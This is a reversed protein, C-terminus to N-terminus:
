AVLDLMDAPNDFAVQGSRSLRCLADVVTRQAIRAADPSVSGHLSIQDELRRASAPSLKTLLRHRFGATTGILATLVQETEVQGFVAKLDGGDLEGLDEFVVLDLDETYFHDSM